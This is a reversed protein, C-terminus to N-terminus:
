QPVVRVRMFQKPQGSVLSKSRFSVTQLSNTNAPPFFQEVDATSSSWNTLDNSVEVVYNIDSVSVPQQFSLTLHDGSM